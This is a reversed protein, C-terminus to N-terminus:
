LPWWWEDGTGDVGCHTVGNRGFHAVGTPSVIVRGAHFDLPECGCRQCLRSVPPRPWEEIVNALGFEIRWCSGFVEGYMERWRTYFADPSRFGEARADERTISGVRVKAVSLIRIRALAPQGRGSQVAYTRGPSYRCPQESGSANHKVRRRTQTKQGALVKSALDPAFIM